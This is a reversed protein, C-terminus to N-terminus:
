TAEKQLARYDPRGREQPWSTAAGLVIEFLHEAGDYAATPRYAARVGEIVASNIDDVFAADTTFVKLELTM